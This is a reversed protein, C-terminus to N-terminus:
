DYVGTFLGPGGDSDKRAIGEIVYNIRFSRRKREQKVLPYIVWGSGANVDLELYIKGGELHLPINVTLYKMQPWSNPAYATKEITIGSGNTPTAKLYSREDKISAPGASNEWADLALDFTYLLKLDAPDIADESKKRLNYIANSLDIYAKLVELDSPFDTKLTKTAVKLASSFENFSATLYDEKELLNSECVLAELNQLDVPRIFADSLNLAKEELFIPFTFAVKNANSIVAMLPSSDQSVKLTQGKKLKKAAIETKTVAASFFATTIERKPPIFDISITFEDRNGHPNKGGTIPSFTKTSVTNGCFSMSRMYGEGNCYPVNGIYHKNGNYYSDPELQVFQYDSLIEYFTRSAIQKKLTVAGDSHGCLLMKVNENPVVIENFIVEARSTEDWTATTARLYQHTCIIANRHSYRKLVQNAWEVTEPTGEVGYGLYLIVFDTNGITILDFHSANDNLSGGYFAKNRYRSAGFYESYLSYDASPYNGTDHNGSVAGNPLDAKDVYSFAKDAIVWQDPALASEPSDDVLDGTTILYGARGAEYEAGAFQYSRYYFDHLDEFKTYHQPDTIWLMTNSGNTVYDPMAIVYIKGDMNYTQIDVEAQLEVEGYGFAVRDFSSTKQNYVKLALREDELTKGHFSLFLTKNKVKSVDVEFLHYPIGSVSTTTFIGEKNRFLQLNPEPVAEVISFDQLDPTTGYSAKYDLTDINYLTVKPSGEKVTLDFAGDENELLQYDPTVDDTVIFYVSQYVTNDAKDSAEFILSYSGPKLNKLTYTFDKGRAIQKGELLINSIKLGSCEDTFSGEIMFGNTVLQNNKLNTVIQPPSNDVLIDGKFILNEGAYAEILHNGDNLKTTDIEFVAESGPRQYNLLFEVKYPIDYRGMDVSNLKTRDTNNGAWTDHNGWGDGLWFLEDESFPYPVYRTVVKETSGVAKAKYSVFGDPEVISGDPLVFKVHSLLFDDKTQGQHNTAQGHPRKENYPGNGWYGGVIVSVANEGERFLSANIAYGKAGDSPFRGLSKGNLGITNSANYTSDTKIDRDPTGDGGQYIILIQPKKDAPKYENGDVKLTFFDGENGKVYINATGKLNEGEKLNLAYGDLSQNASALVFTFTSFILLTFALKRFSSM